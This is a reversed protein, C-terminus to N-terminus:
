CGSETDKVEPTLECSADVSPTDSDDDSQMSPRLESAVVEPVDEVCDAGLQPTLNDSSHLTPRCDEDDSTTLSPTLQGADMTPTLDARESTISPRLAQSAEISPIDEACESGDLTPTLEMSDIILPKLPLGIAGQEPPTVPCGGWGRTTILGGQCGWGWTTISM